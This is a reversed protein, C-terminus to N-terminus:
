PTAELPTCVGRKEREPFDWPVKAATAADGAIQHALLDSVRDLDRYLQTEPIKGESCQYVLCAVARYSDLLSADRHDWKYEPVEEAEGYREMLAAKNMEFLRRGLADCQAVSAYSEVMASVVRHMTETTVMFASM